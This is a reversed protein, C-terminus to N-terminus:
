EIEIAKVRRERGDSEGTARARRERGDSEGTVRARREREFRRARRKTDMAKNGDSQAWREQGNSDRGDSEGTM